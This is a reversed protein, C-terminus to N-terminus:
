AELVEDGESQSLIDGAWGGGEGACESQMSPVTKNIHSLLPCRSCQSVKRTVGHKPGLAPVPCHTQALSEDEQRVPILYKTESPLPAMVVASSRQFGQGM